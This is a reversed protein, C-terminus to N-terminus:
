KSHAREASRYFDEERVREAVKDWAEKDLFVGGLVAQEAEVSHPPIKLATTEVDNSFSTKVPEQM